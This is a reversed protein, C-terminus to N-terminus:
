KELSGLCERHDSVTCFSRVFHQGNCKARTINLDHYNQTHRWWLFHLVNLHQKCSPLHLCWWHRVNRIWYINTCKEPSTCLTTESTPLVDRWHPIEWGVSAYKSMLLINLCLSQNLTSCPIREMLFKRRGVTEFTVNYFTMFYITCFKIVTLGAIYLIYM